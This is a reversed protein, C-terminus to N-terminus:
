AEHRQRIAQRTRRLMTLFGRKRQAEAKLAKAIDGRDRRILFFMWVYFAACLLLALGLM